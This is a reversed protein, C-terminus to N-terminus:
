FVKSFLYQEVKSSNHGSTLSVYSTLKSITDMLIGHPVALTVSGSSDAFKYHYRFNRPETTSQPPDNIFEVIVGHLSVNKLGPKLNKINSFESESFNFNQENEIMIKIFPDSLRLILM